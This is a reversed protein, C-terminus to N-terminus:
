GAPAPGSVRVEFQMGLQLVAAADNQGGGGFPDSFGGGAGTGAGAWGGGGGVAHGASGNAHGAGAAAPINGNGLPDFSGDSLNPDFINVQAHTHAHM